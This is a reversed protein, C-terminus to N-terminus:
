KRHTCQKEDVPRKGNRVPFIKDSAAFRGPLISINTAPNVFINNKIERANRKNGKPRLSISFVFQPRQLPLSNYM